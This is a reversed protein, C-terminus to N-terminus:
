SNIVLNWGSNFPPTFNLNFNISDKCLQAHCFYKDDKLKHRLGTILYRGSMIPDLEIKASDTQANNKPINLNVVDGISLSSDGPIDVHLRTNNLLALRAARMLLWQSALSDQFKPFMRIYASAQNISNGLRNQALNYPLYENLIEFSNSDVSFQEYETSRNLIDLKVLESAYAGNNINDLVDFIQKFQMEDLKDRRMGVSETADDNKPSFFINKKVPTTYLSSLSKFAYGNITEYFFFGPSLDNRSLAFSSIWNIAEFPKLNPIILPNKDPNLLVTSEEIQNDTLKTPPIKLYNRAIIKVVDSLRTEKFSKSIYYQQNLLFEESCFHIRFRANSTGRLSYDSVKYIRFIKEYRQARGPTSFSISVFENGHMNLKQFLNNSDTLLIDGNIVNSFLDEYLNIEGYIYNIDINTGLANIIKLEILTYDYPTLAGEGSTIGNPNLDSM